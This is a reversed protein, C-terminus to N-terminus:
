KDFPLHEASIPFEQAIIGCVSGRVSLVKSAYTADLYLYASCSISGQLSLSSLPIVWDSSLALWATRDLAGLARPVAETTISARLRFFVYPLPSFLKATKDSAFRLKRCPSITAM